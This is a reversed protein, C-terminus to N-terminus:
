IKYFCCCSYTSFIRSHASGNETRSDTNNVDHLLGNPATCTDIVDQAMRKRSKTPSSPVLSGVRSYLGSAAHPALIRIRQLFTCTKQLHMHQKQEQAYICFYMSLHMGHPSFIAHQKQKNNTQKNQKNTPKTTTTKNTQKNNTQKNTQQKNTQKNTTQKNTQKNNKRKSVLVQLLFSLYRELCSGFM